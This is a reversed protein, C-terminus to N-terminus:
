RVVEWLDLTEKGTAAKMRKVKAEVAATDDRPEETQGGFMAQLGNVSAMLRWHRQMAERVAFFQVDTFGAVTEFPLGTALVMDSLAEKWNYAM